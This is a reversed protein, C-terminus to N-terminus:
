RQLVIYYETAPTKDTCTSKKDTQISNQLPKLNLPTKKIM